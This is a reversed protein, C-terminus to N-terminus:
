GCTRRHLRPDSFAQGLKPPTGAQPNEGISEEADPWYNFLNEVANFVTECGGCTTMGSAQTLQGANVDFVTQCEPCKTFM